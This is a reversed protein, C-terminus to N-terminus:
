VENGYKTSWRESVDPEFPASLKTAAHELKKSIEYSIRAHSKQSADDVFAIAKWTVGNHEATVTIKITDNNM